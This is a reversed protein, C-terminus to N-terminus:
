NALMTSPTLVLRITRTRLITRIRVASLISSLLSRTRPDGASLSGGSLSSMHRLSRLLFPSSSSSVTSRSLSRSLFLCLSTQSLSRFLCLYAQSLFCFLFINFRHNDSGSGANDEMESGSESQSVVHRKFFCILREDSSNKTRSSTKIRRFFFAYNNEQYINLDKFLISLIWIWVRLIASKCRCPKADNQRFQLHFECNDFTLPRVRSKISSKLDLPQVRSKKRSTMFIPLFDWSIEDLTIKGIIKEPKWYDM